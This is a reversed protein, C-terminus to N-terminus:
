SGDTKQKVLNKLCKGSSLLIRAREASCCHLDDDEARPLDAARHRLAEDGLVVVDCYHIEVHLSQARQLLPEVQTRDVAAGPV